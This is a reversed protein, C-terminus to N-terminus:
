VLIHIDIVWSIKGRIEGVRWWLCLSRVAEVKGRHEVIPM